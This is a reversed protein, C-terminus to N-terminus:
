EALLSVNSIEISALHEMVLDGLRGRTGVRLWNFGSGSGSVNKLANV